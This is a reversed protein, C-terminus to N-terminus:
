FCHTTRKQKRKKVCVEVWMTCEDAFNESVEIKCVKTAIFKTSNNNIAKKIESKLSAM